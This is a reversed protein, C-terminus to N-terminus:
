AGAATCQNESPGPGPQMKLEVATAAAIKDHEGGEFVDSSLAAPELTKDEFLLITTGILLEDDTKLVEETIRTNNVFTGNTSNLDRIFCMEGIRFIESHARSVGQDLVQLTQNDDRGITIVADKIEFVRGKNPGSKVRIYPM